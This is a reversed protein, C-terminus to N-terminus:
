ESLPRRWYFYDASTQVRKWIEDPMSSQWVGGLAWRFRKDARAEAEVTSILDAGNASLLDELPGAALLGGVTQAETRSDAYYQNEDYNRIVCKIAEWALAPNRRALDVLEWGDDFVKESAKSPGLRACAIWDSAVKAPTNDM